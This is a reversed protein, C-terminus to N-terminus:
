YSFTRKFFNKGQNYLKSHEQFKKLFKSAKTRKTWFLGCASRQSSVLRFDEFSLKTVFLKRKDVFLFSLIRKFKGKVKTDKTPTNEVKFHLVKTKFVVAHYAGAM